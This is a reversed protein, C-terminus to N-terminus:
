SGNWCLYRRKETYPSSNPQFPSQLKFAPAFNGSIIRTVTAPNARRRAASAAEKPKLVPAAPQQPAQATDVDMANSDAPQGGNPDDPDVLDSGLGVTDRKKDAVNLEAQTRSQVLRDMATRRDVNGILDEEVVTAQTQESSVPGSAQHFADNAPTSDADSFLSSVSQKKQEYEDVPRPAADKVPDNKRGTNSVVNEWLRFRGDEDVLAVSNRKPHWAVAIVKRQHRLRDLSSGGGGRSNPSLDWVVYSNDTHSSIMYHGNPSWDLAVVESKHEQLRKWEKWSDRELICVGTYTPIAIKNGLADWVPRNLQSLKMDSRPLLESSWVAKDITSSSYDWVCVM